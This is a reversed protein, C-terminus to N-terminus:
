RQAQLDPVKVKLLQKGMVRQSFRRDGQTAEETKGRSVVPASREPLSQCQDSSASRMSPRLRDAHLCVQSGKSPSPQFLHTHCYCHLEEERGRTDMEM